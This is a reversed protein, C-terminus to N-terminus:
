SLCLLQKPALAVLQRGYRDLRPRQRHIDLPTLFQTQRLLFARKRVKIQRCSYRLRRVILFPM